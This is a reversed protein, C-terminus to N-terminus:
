CLLKRFAVLRIEQFLDALTFDTWEVDSKMLDRNIDVFAVIAEKFNKVHVCLLFFM